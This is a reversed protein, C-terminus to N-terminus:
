VNKVARKRPKKVPADKEFDKFLQLKPDLIKRAQGSIMSKFMPTVTLTELQNDYFRLEENARSWREIHVGM